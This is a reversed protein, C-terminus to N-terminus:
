INKILTFDSWGSITTKKNKLVNPLKTVIASFPPVEVRAFRAQLHLSFKFYVSDGGFM